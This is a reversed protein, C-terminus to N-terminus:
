SIYQAYKRDGCANLALVYNFKRHMIILRYKILDYAIKRRGRFCDCCLVHISFFVLAWKYVTASIKTNYM